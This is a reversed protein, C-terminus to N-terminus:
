SILISGWTKIKRQNLARMFKQKMFLGYSNKVKIWDIYKPLKKKIQLFKKM